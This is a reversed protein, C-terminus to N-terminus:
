ERHDHQAFDCLLEDGGVDSGAVLDYSPDPCNCIEAPPFAREVDKRAAEQKMAVVRRKAVQTKLDDECINVM